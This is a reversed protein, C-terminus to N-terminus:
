RRGGRSVGGIEATSASVGRVGLLAKEGSRPGDDTEVLGFTDPKAKAATGPPGEVTVHGRQIAWRFLNISDHVNAKEMLRMRHCAATKVSIGLLGAVQKTSRGECILRLVELERPTPESAPDGM